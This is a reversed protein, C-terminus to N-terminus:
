SREFTLASDNWPVVRASGFAVLWNSRAAGALNDGDQFAPFFDGVAPVATSNTYAVWWDEPCAFLGDMNATNEGSWMPPIFPIGEGAQLAPKEAAFSGGGALALEGAGVRINQAINTFVRAAIGSFTSAGIVGNPNGSPSGAGAGRAEITFRYGVYPQSFVPNVVRQSVYSQKVREVGVDVIQANQRFTICRWAKGDDRMFISMVRDSSTTANIVTNGTSIVVEDTATPQQTGNPVFLGGPSYSIRLIDATAGQNAILVEVGDPNRWVGYSQAAAANAGQNDCDSESALRDTHDSANSPGTVGDCTYQVSWAVKQGAGDLQSTTSKFATHQQFMWWGATNALSVFPTKRINAFVTWKKKVIQIAM